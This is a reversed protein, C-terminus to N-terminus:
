GYLFNASLMLILRKANQAYLCHSTGDVNFVNRGLPIIWYKRKWTTKEVLKLLFVLFKECWRFMNGCIFIEISLVSWCPNQGPFWRTCWNQQVTYDFHFILTFYPVFVILLKFIKMHKCILLPFPRFSFAPSVVVIISFL